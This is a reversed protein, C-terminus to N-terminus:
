GAPRRGHASRRARRALVGGGALVVVAAGGASLATGRSLGLVTDGAAAGGTEPARLHLGRCAPPVAVTGAGDAVEFQFASSQTDGDASVVTYSLTSVGSRLPTVAACTVSDDAVVPQGVPVPTGDPGVLSIKPTTGPKLPGFTLSLVDVGPAVKDGPGPTADQLATHAHAPAGGLFLLAGLCGSLVAPARLLRLRRM